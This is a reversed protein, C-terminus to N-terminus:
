QHIFIALNSKRFSAKNRWGFSFISEPNLEEAVPPLVDQGFPAFEM